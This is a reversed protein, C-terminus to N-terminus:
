GYMGASIDSYIQVSHDQGNSSEVEVSMYAFPFSQRIPDSPQIVLNCFVRRSSIFRPILAIEGGCPQPVNPAIDSTRCCDYVPLTNTDREFRDFRFIGTWGSSTRSAPWARSRNSFAPWAVFVGSWGGKCLCEM